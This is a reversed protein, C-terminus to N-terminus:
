AMATCEIAVDLEAPWSAVTVFTRAPHDAQFYRAYVRNITAYHASNAAFLTVKVVKDLSSGAAELTAMLNELCAETQTAIDATLLEGTARNIPLMASTFIFGGAKVATSIPLGAKRTADTLGPVSIIQKTVRTLIAM